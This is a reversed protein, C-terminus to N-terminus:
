RLQTWLTGLDKRFFKLPTNVEYREFELYPKDLGELEGIFASAKAVCISGTKLRVVM